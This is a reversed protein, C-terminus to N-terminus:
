SLWLDGTEDATINYKEEIWKIVIGTLILMVNLGSIAQLEDSADKYPYIDGMFDRLPKTIFGYRPIINIIKNNDDYIVRQITLRVWVDSEINPNPREITIKSARLKTKM